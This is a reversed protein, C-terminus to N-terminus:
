ELEVIEQCKQINYTIICFCDPCSEQCETLNMTRSATGALTGSYEINEYLCRAVTEGPVTAQQEAKAVAASEEKKEAEAAQGGPPKGQNEPACSFYISAFRPCLHTPVSPGPMLFHSFMLFCVNQYWHKMM